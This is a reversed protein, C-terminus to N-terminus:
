AAIIAAYMNGRGYISRYVGSQRLTSYGMDLFLQELQKYNIPYPVWPNSEIIDYEVIIFKGQGKFHQRIRQLWARKDAIYHLSNAMLLGDLAPMILNDQEFDAKIMQIDVERDVVIKRAPLQQDVAFITSHAPLLSALIKTFFGEGCGLDAWIEPQDPDFSLDGLLRIADKILM